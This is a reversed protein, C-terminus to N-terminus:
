PRKAGCETCFKGHNVSGCSCIWEAKPRQTGCETCFNGHNETGCRCMWATGTQSQPTQGQPWNQLSQQGMSFLNQVTAGGAQQAMGMGMFGTMAGGKNGAAARM